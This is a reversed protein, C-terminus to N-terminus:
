IRLGERSKIELGNKLLCDVDYFRTYNAKSTAHDVVFPILREKPFVVNVSPCLM